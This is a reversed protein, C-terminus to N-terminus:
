GKSSNLSSELNDHISLLDALGSIEFIKRLNDNLSCISFSGSNKALSKSASIVVRLGASSIYNVGSFDVIMSGCGKKIEHMVKEHVQGSNTADIRGKLHVIVFGDKNEIQIDQM